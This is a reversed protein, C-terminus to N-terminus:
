MKLDNRLIRTLSSYRLFTAPVIKTSCYLNCNAFKVTIKHFNVFKAWRFLDPVVNLFLYQWVYAFIVDCSRVLAVPGADELQLALTLFTQGVFYMFAITLVLIWDHLGHPIEFTNAVSCLLLAELSGIFGCSFTTLSFHVSALMRLVVFTLTGM